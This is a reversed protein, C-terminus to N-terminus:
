VSSGFIQALSRLGDDNDDNVDIIMLSLPPVHEEFLCGRSSLLSQTGLYLSTSHIFCSFFPPLAGSRSRRVCVCVSLGTNDLPLSFSSKRLCTTKGVSVCMCAHLLSRPLLFPLRSDRRSILLLLPLLARSLCVLLTMLSTSYLSFPLLLDLCMM